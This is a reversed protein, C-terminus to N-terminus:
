TRTGEKPATTATRSHLVTPKLPPGHPKVVALTREPSVVFLPTEMKLHCPHKNGHLAAGSAKNSPMLMYFCQVVAVVFFLGLIFFPNSYLPSLALFV